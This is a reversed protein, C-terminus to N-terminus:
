PIRGGQRLHTQADRKYSGWSFGHDTPDEATGSSTVREPEIHRADTAAVLEEFTSYTTYPLGHRGGPMAANGFSYRPTGTWYSGGGCTTAEELGRPHKRNPRPSANGVRPFRADYGPYRGLRADPVTARHGRM